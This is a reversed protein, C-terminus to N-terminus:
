GFREPLASRTQANYHVSGVGGLPLKGAVEVVPILQQNAAYQELAGDEGTRTLNSGRLHSLGGDKAADSKSSFQLYVNLVVGCVVGVKQRKSLSNETLWFMMIVGLLFGLLFGVVFEGITGEREEGAATGNEQGNNEGVVVTRAAAANMRRNIRTSTLRRQIDNLLTLPSENSPPTRATTGAVAGVSGLHEGAHRGVNLYFESTTDRTEMRMWDEEMRIWRHHPDENSNINQTNSYREVHPFYTLRIAEVEDDSYGANRLLGFGRFVDSDTPIVVSSLNKKVVETVMCHVCADNVLGSDFITTDEELLQGQYVLRIRLKKTTNGKTEGNSNSSPLIERIVKILHTITWQSEVALNLM